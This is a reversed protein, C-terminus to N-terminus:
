FIGMWSTPADHDGETAQFLVAIATDPFGGGDGGVAHGDGGGVPKVAEGAWCWYCACPTGELANNAFDDYEIVEVGVDAMGNCFTGDAVAGCAEGGVDGVGGAEFVVGM